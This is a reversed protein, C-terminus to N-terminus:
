ARRATAPVIDAVVEPVVYPLFPAMLALRAALVFGPPIESIQAACRAEEVGVRRPRRRRLPPRAVPATLTVM